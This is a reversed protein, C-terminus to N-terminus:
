RMGLCVTIRCIEAGASTCVGEYQVLLFYGAGRVTNRFGTRIALDGDRM